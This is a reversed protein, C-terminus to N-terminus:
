WDVHSFMGYLRSKLYLVFNRLEKKHLNVTMLKSLCNKVQENGHEHSDAGSWNFGAQLM